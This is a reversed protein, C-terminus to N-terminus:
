TCWSTVHVNRLQSLIGFDLGHQKVCVVIEDFSAELYEKNWRSLALRRVQLFNEQPVLPDVWTVQVKGSLVLSKALELGPSNALHGQGAKFGIGVVLVRPKPFPGIRGVLDYVLRVALQTPRNRMKETAERLLPFENNSFLYYPNVPICHGGVGASPTFPLYGFPKTAAAECVEFPDIGHSVCADAMENAYAIGIMRQCNEYLKMMEAVEPRSVPVITKFASSYLSAIRELSGPVIDDLGSIIKPIAHAPPDKRGPDVREPSMGAYFGRAAAVPGLLERTMGVAVSSEIVVVAGPRAHRSVTKLAQRLYSSDISHDPLLLTPVAILFHTAQAIGNSNATFTANSRHKFDASLQGVRSLSVDFGIVKYKQCFTEVLHQGVYGVGVVAVIPKDNPSIPQADVYLSALPDLIEDESPPTQDYYTKTM